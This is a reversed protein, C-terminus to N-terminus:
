ENWVLDSVTFTITITQPNEQVFNVIHDAENWIIEAVCSGEWSNVPDTTDFITGRMGTKFASNTITLEVGDVVISDWRINCSAVNSQLLTGETVDLDKIYISTLNNLGTVGLGKTTDTMDACDFTLTYQGEGTIAVSTGVETNYCGLESDNFLVHIAANIVQEYVRDEVTVSVTKTVGDSSTIYIDTTGANVGKIKGYKSVTAVSEDASSYELYVGVGSTTFEANIAVTDGEVVTYSEAETTIVTDTEPTQSQTTEPTTDASPSDTHTGTDDEQCACLCLALSLCLVLALIKTLTKM